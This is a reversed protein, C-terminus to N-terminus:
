CDLKPQNGFILRPTGAPIKIAKQKPKGSTPVPLLAPPQDTAIQKTNEM